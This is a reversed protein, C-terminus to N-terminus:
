VPTDTAKQNRNGKFSQEAELLAKEKGGGNV